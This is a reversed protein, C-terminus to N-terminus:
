VWMRAGPNNAVFRLVLSSNANVTATDRLLPTDDLADTAPDYFPTDPQARYMVWFWHGHLHLPHEGGDYNNVVIDVM